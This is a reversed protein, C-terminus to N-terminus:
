WFYTAVVSPPSANGNVVKVSILVQLNKKEWGKPAQAAVTEWDAANVLFESAAVTGIPTIGGVSVVYHGTAPDVVRTIIGYEATVDTYPASM